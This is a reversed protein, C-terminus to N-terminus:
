SFADMSSMPQEERMARGTALAHAWDARGARYAESAAADWDYELVRFHAHWRAGRREVIAYRAHPTGTEMVHAFGADDSFAPLGVSGPNLILPGDPIDVFRPMHSHGCLVLSQRVEGLRERIEAISAAAAGASTVRELLYESDSAPTGHCLLVDGMVATVPLAALWARHAAALHSAAARDSAGMERLAQTVVRRDCNGRITLFGGNMLLEATDAANLPGSVCDGLNVTIDPSHEAVDALVVDLAGLNGHVDAIVAIRM